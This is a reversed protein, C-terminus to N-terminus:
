ITANGRSGRRLTADDVGAGLRDYVVPTSLKSMGPNKGSLEKKDMPSVM